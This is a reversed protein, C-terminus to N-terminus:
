AASGRMRSQEFFDDPFAIARETYHPVWGGEDIFYRAAKIRPSDGLTFWHETEAPVNIYDGTTVELMFQDENKDVFGFYGKGALIYRVEDDSHYHISEFKALMDEVGPINEHVVIMDCTTYGHAAKLEDFRHSISELVAQQEEEDLAAKNLMAKINPQSPIPWDQLTIGIESLKQQIKPLEYTRNNDPFILCAM